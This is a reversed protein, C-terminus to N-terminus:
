VNHCYRGIQYFDSFEKLNSDNQVLRHGQTMYYSCRACQLVLAFQIWQFSLEGFGSFWRKVQLLGSALVSWMLLNRVWSKRYTPKM